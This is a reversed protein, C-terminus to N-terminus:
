ITKIPASIICLQDYHEYNGIKRPLCCPAQHSSESINVDIEKCFTGYNLPLELCAQTTTWQSQSFANRISKIEENYWFQLIEKTLTSDQDPKLSLEWLCRQVKEEKERRKEVCMRIFTVFIWDFRYAIEYTNRM